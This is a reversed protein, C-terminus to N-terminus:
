GEEEPRWCEERQEEHGNSSNNKMYDANSWKLLSRTSGDDDICIQSLVVQKENFLFVTMELCSLPEMSGSSGDHNKTCEHYPVPAIIKKKHWNSCKNCLKSKICLAIPKRSYKGVILAHGSPSAYRNGSNRQQWAMDFSGSVKPYNSPNLPMEKNEQAQKWFKFDSEHGGSAEISRRVEDELNEHLVDRTLKCIVCSTREEIIGFSRGEMTTDNPLGLLGLMRGAEKGGDGCAVLGLVYLVNVAYDTM